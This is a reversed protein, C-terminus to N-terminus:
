VEKKSKSKSKKPKKSKRKQLEKEYTYLLEPDSFYNAIKLVLPRSIKKGRMVERIFMDRTGIEMALMNISIGKETLKKKLLERFEQM